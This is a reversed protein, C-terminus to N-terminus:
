YGIHARRAPVPPPPPKKARNVPPPPPKAKRSEHGNPVRCLSDYSTASSASRNGWSAGDEGSGISDDDRFVDDTQRAYAVNDSATRGLAPVRVGLTALPTSTGYTTSARVLSHRPSQSPPPLSPPAAANASALRRAPLRETSPSLRRPAPQRADHWSRDTNSRARSVHREEYSPSASRSDDFLEQKARRLEEAAQEHYELQAELFVMKLAAISEAESDQIDQMRRMVDESADDFKTRTKCVGEEVKHDDQKAKQM